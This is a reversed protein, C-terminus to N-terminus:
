PITTGTYTISNGYAGVSQSAATGLRLKTSIVDVAGVAHGTTSYFTTATAPFAAYNAGSGWKSDLAPAGTVTFGLGRTTGETWAAPAAITGSIAPITTAGSQLDHNQQVSVNYASSNTRVIVDQQTTTSSSTITGLTLGTPTGAAQAAYEASVESPSLVRNFLKVQDIAGTLSRGLGPFSGISFSGTSNQLASPITGSMTTSLLTGDLYLQVRNAPNSQTGDYTMVIHRWTNFTNWTNAATDIYNNGPDGQSDAIFVRLNNNVGTQLAWSGSAGGSVGAASYNWQSAFAQNSVWSAQRAWLEVTMTTGTPLNANDPVLVAGTGTSDTAGHMDVSAGIQGSGTYWGATGNLTGNNQYQSADATTTGTNEDLPYYAVLGSPQVSLQMTSAAGSASPQQDMIYSTSSGKGVVTEGGISTMKYDTSSTLGGFAGGANGNLIYNPSTMRDGSVTTLASMTLWVGGLLAAQAVRGFRRTRRTM